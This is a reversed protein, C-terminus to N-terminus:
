NRAIISEDLSQDIAYYDKMWPIIEDGKRTKAMQEWDKESIGAQPYDKLESYSYITGRTLYIFGNIEVPVLLTHAPGVGSHLPHDGDYVRTGFAMSNAIEYEGSRYSINLMAFTLDQMEAGMSRIRKFDEETLPESKLEKESISKLITITSLLDDITKNYNSTLLHKDSLFSRTKQLLLSSANWFAVNPEIYGMLVLNSDIDEIIKSSRAVHVNVRENLQVWSGLAANLNKRKWSTQQMFEPLNSSSHLSTLLTSLWDMNRDEEQASIKLLNEM